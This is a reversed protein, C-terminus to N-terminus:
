ACSQFVFVGGNACRKLGDPVMAADVKGAVADLVWESAAEGQVVAAHRQLLTM